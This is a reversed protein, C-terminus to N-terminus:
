ILNRSNHKETNAVSETSFTRIPIRHEIEISDNEGINNANEQFDLRKRSNENIKKKPAKTPDESTSEIDENVISNVGDSDNQGININRIQKLIESFGVQLSKQINANIQNELEARYERNSASILDKILGAYARPSHGISMGKHLQPIQPPPVTFNGSLLPNPAKPIAGESQGSVERSYSPQENNVHTNPTNIADSM